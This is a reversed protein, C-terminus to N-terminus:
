ASPTWPTVFDNAPRGEIAANLEGAKAGDIQERLLDAHGAHRAFEEVHHVVLYRMSAERPEDMGYWPMPPVQMVDDLDLEATLALYRAMLDDFIERMADVSVDEALTFSGYFDHGDIPPDDLQGAGALAGVMCFGCHKMLGALSLDSALPRSRAQEDSLGHSADRIARLQVELYNRLTTREDDISPLYM